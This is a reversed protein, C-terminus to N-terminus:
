RKWETIRVRGQNAYPSIFAGAAFRAELALTYTGAGPTEHLFTSLSIEM